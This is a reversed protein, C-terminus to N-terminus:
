NDSPNKKNRLDNIRPVSYIGRSNILEPIPIKCIVDDIAYDCLDEKDPWRWNNVSMTMTKVKVNKSDSEVVAGPYFEGEYQVIVYEGRLYNLNEANMNSIEEIVENPAPAENSAPINVPLM